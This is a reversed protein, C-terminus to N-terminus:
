PEERVFWDNPGRWSIAKFPGEAFGRRRLWQFVEAPDWERGQAFLVGMDRLAGLLRGKEEDSGAEILLVASDSPDERFGMGRLRMNLGADRSELGIVQRDAYTVHPPLTHAM